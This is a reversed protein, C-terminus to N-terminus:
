GDSERLQDEITHGLQYVAMAYLESHNYRTIAYFNRYGLWFDHGEPQEFRLLAAKRDENAVEEDAPEFGREIYDSVPLTPRPGKELLEEVDDDSSSNELPTAIPEGREWGHEALYNAVSGIVDPWSSWLDRRGDGDFDVAYRQFSSAIFQPHGMAGAYSGKLGKPDLQEGRTMVLFTELERRFFDARPPYAFGLTGLADLVDHSGAHRGFRTEVGIIAVIVAPDVGYEAEARELTERHEEWFRAGESIRSEGLFIPRYRHWPLREAPSTIADIIGENVERDEFLDILRERNFHHEEVMHDLFDDFGPQETVPDASAQAISALAALLLVALTRM